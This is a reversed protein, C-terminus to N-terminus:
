NITFNIKIYSSRHITNNAFCILCCCQLLQYWFKLKLLLQILQLYHLAAEINWILSWFLYWHLKSMPVWYQVSKCPVAKFFLLNFTAMASMFSQPNTRIQIKYVAQYIPTKTSIKTGTCLLSMLVCNKQACNHVAFM